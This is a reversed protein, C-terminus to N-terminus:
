KRHDQQPSDMAEVYTFRDSNMSTLALDEAIIILANASIKVQSRTIRNTRPPQFSQKTM